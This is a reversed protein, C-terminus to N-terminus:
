SLDAFADLERPCRARSSSIRAQGAGLPRASARGPGVPLPGSGIGSCHAIGEVFVRAPLAGDARSGELAGSFPVRGGVPCFLSSEGWSAVRAV